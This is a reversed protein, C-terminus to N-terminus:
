SGTAGAPTDGAVTSLLLQGALLLLVGGMLRDLWHGCRSFGRRIHPLTFFVAVLMFWLGTAVAM